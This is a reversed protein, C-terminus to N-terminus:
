KDTTSSSSELKYHGYGERDIFIFRLGIDAELVRDRELIPNGSRNYIWLEYPYAVNGGEGVAGIKRPDVIIDKSPGKFSGRAGHTSYSVPHFRDEVKDLADSLAERNLPVVEAVIEDPEGYKLYILGRDTFFGEQYDAYYTNVYELREMFEIYAENESTNPTPDLKSWLEKLMQEQDGISKYRFEEFAKDGILFRAEALYNRRPAEWTRLDWAINFSGCRFRGILKSEIKINAYLSYGGATFATLDERVLLPYLDFNGISGPIDGGATEGRRKLPIRSRKVVEGKSNLVSSEFGLTGLASVSDPVYLEMYVELSDKYLGYMRAPNPHYVPAGGNRQVLWLFMPDSLSILDPEIRPINLPVGRLESTKHRRKVMALVTVKPSHIDTVTCTLEYKGPPLQYRKIVMQFHLPSEIKAEDDEYFDMTFNEDVQSKGAEDKVVIAFDLKSHFKDESPKFKIDRNTFRFYLEQIQTEGGRWFLARDLYFDFDGRGRLEKSVSSAPLALLCAGSAICLVALKAISGRARHLMVM